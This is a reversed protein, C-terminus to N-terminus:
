PPSTLGGVAEIAVVAVLLLRPWGPAPGAASPSHPEQM